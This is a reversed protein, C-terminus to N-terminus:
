APINKALFIVISTTKQIFNKIINKTQLNVQEKDSNM